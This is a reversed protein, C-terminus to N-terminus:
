QRAREIRELTRQGVLLYLLLGLFPFLWVLAIWTLKSGMDVPRRAIDYLALLDAALLGIGVAEWM